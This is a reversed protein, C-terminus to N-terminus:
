FQFETRRDKWKFKVGVRHLLHQSQKCKISLFCLALLSLSKELSVAMLTGSPQSGLCLKRWWQLESILRCPESSPTDFM